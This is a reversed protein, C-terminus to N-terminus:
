PVAAHRVAEWADPRRRAAQLAADRAEPYPEYDPRDSRARYDRGLHRPLSGDCSQGQQLAEGAVVCGFPWLLQCASVHGRVARRGGVTKVGKKSLADKTKALLKANAKQKTQDWQQKAESTPHPVHVLFVQPVVAFSAGAARRRMVLEIKNKGYGVFREDYHDGTKRVVVYPEYDNSDFCKIPRVTDTNNSAMFTPYDTTSHGWKNHGYDFIRCLNRAACVQLEGFTSPIAKVFSKQCRSLAFPDTTALGRQTASADGGEPSAVLCSRSLGAIRFAPVVFARAPDLFTAPNAAAL